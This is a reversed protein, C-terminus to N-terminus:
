EEATELKEYRYYYRQLLWYALVLLLGAIVLPPVHYMVLLFLGVFIFFVRNVYKESPLDTFLLCHFGLCICLTMGTYDIWQVWAFTSSLFHPLVLIEPLLVGLYVLAYQGFRRTLSLPLNRTILLYREEWDRYQQVLIVHAFASLLFGIRLMREDYDVSAYLPIIGVLILLSFAKTSFLLVKEQHLLYSWFFAPYPKAFRFDFLRNLLSPNRDQNPQTIRRHFVGAVGLCLVANYLVIVAATAYARREVVAVGAATLAYLWVPLHLYAQIAFLSGMQRRFPLLSICYLFENEPLALTKLGFQLCKFAYLLWVAAAVLLIAASGAMEWMIAHHMPKAKEGAIGFLLLFIVLFFGANRQYFSHGIVKTLVRLESTM